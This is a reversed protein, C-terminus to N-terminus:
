EQILLESLITTFVEISDTTLAATFLADLKESEKIVSIKNEIDQYLQVPPNLRVIVARLIAEVKTQNRIRRLFPTDLLLDNSDVLKELMALYEENGMLALLANFLNQRKVLNPETQLREVMKPLTIEPQQIRMLGM